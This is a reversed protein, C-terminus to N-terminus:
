KCDGPLKPPNPFHRRVIDAYDAFTHTATARAFSNASVSCVITASVAAVNYGADAARAAAYAANETHAAGAVRGVRAAICAAWGAARVEEITAEECAWRRATEIAIRPRDEEAPVHLLVTEAIDCACLCLLKASPLPEAKKLLWLM